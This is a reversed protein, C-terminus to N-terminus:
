KYRFLVSNCDACKILSFMKDRGINKFAMRAGIITLITPITGLKDTIAGLIKFLTNASDTLGKLFDSGLLTNSLAEWSAQFQNVKGQMSNM